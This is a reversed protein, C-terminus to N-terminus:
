SMSYEAYGSATVSAGSTNEVEISVDVPGSVSASSFTAHKATTSAVTVSNTLDVVKLTVGTSTTQGALQVGGSSVTLTQGSPVQFQAAVASTGTAIETLPIETTDNGDGGSPWSTKTTGGLTIQGTNVSGSTVSDAVVNSPVRRDRIDASSLSSAGAGVWVEALVVGGTSPVPPSPSYTAFQTDGSPLASEPTGTEVQVVGSTDLYITDKRPNSADAGSLTATTAGGLSVTDVSGNTEGVTAEGAAVSVTLGSDVSVGLGSVVGYGDLKDRWAQADLASYGQGIQYDLM